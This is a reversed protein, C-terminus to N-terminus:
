TRRASTSARSQGGPTVSENAKWSMLKFAGSAASHTKLWGNGLDGNTEHALAVKKEVVSAVISTM